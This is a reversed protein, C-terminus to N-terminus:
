PKRADLLRIPKQRREIETFPATEGPEALEVGIEVGLRQRLRAALRARIEESAAVGPALEVVVTMADRGGERAVRCVYEGGIAPDDALHAGIATPYVNIGRLKVMNDSRGQFGAIRRFGIGLGGGGPLISSVDQTDFRVIPYVATKFLCTVCINGREGPAAPAKSDPDVIEVLHADEWLYLGDHDPAETAIIGTDGVGYWDYLEVEGWLARVAERSEQGVHGSIM